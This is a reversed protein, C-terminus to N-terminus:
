KDSASLPQGKKREDPGSFETPSRLQRLVEWEGRRIGYEYFLRGAEAKGASTLSDRGNSWKCPAGKAGVGSDFGAVGIPPPATGREGGEEGRPSLWGENRGM